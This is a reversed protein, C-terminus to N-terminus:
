PALCTLVNRVTSLRVPFFTPTVLMHTPVPYTVRKCATNPYNDLKMSAHSHCRYPNQFLTDTVQFTHRMYGVPMPEICPQAIEYLPRSIYFFIYVFYQCCAFSFHTAAHKGISLM